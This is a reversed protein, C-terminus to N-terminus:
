VRFTNNFPNNRQETTASTPTEVEGGKIVVFPDDKFTKLKGPAGLHVDAQVGHMVPAGGQSVSYEEEEHGKSGRRRRVDRVVLVVLLVAAIAAVAAGVIIGILTGTTLKTSNNTTTTTTTTNAPPAPTTAATANADTATPAAPPPTAPPPPTSVVVPTNNVFVAMAPPSQTTFSSASLLADWQGNQLQNQVLNYTAVPDNTNVVAHIRMAPQGVNQLIARLRRTMPTSIINISDPFVQFVQSLLLLVQNQGDIQYTTPNLGNLVFDMEVRNPPLDGSLLTTNTFDPATVNAAPATTNATPAACSNTDCCPDYPPIKLVQGATLGADVGALGNAKVIDLSSTNTKQAIIYLYQGTEVTWTQCQSSTTTNTNSTTTTNAVPATANAGCSAPDYPPIKLVDGINLTAAVVGPNAAQLDSASVGFKGAIADFYDGKAVTYNQCKSVPAPAALSVANCTLQAGVQSAPVPNQIWNILQRITVFFVNPKQLAYDVFKNMATVHDPTFWPAHVFVPFPARNGNYALDFDTTLLTYLDGGYGGEPDMTFSHDSQDVTAAPLDWMPIEWVGPYKEDKTCMADPYTWNCYQPIGNDMTYPWLRHSFDSTTPNNGPSLFEIISSDYLLGNKYIVARVEPNTVLFPSRFGVMEELPIGCSKNLWSKVGMMEPELGKFTPILQPHHITHLAIEHNQEYLAKVLACDSGTQTTFWTAPINCGNSNVKGDTVSRVAKNATADIADDHTLLIFQPM